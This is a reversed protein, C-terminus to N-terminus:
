RGYVVGSQVRPTDSSDDAPANAPTRCQVNVIYAKGNDEIYSDAYLLNSGLWETFVGHDFLFRKLTSLSIVMGLHKESVRQMTVPNTMTQVAKAVVVGIVNGSTDFVPGGSNGHEVVDTIFFRGESGKIEHMDEVQATAVSYEGRAGAEGPYGMLLVKDGVKLDDINFRLPAFQQPSEQTEVLALDNEDDQVKVKAKQEPIAGKVYVETCGRVVHANTIVYQRNVFFGTGSQVRYYRVIQESDAVAPLLAIVCLIGLLRRM